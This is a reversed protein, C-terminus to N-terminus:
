EGLVFSHLIKGSYDIFVIGKMTHGEDIAKNFFLMEIWAKECSISLSHLKWNETKIAEQKLFNAISEEDEMIKDYAGYCIVNTYEKSIEDARALLVESLTRIAVDISDQALSLVQQPTLDTQDSLYKDKM